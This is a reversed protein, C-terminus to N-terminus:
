NWTKSKETKHESENILKIIPIFQYNKCLFHFTNERNINYPIMKIRNIINTKFDINELPPEIIQWPHIVLCVPINKKNSQKIFWQINNGLLGIFFGSGFPIEKILLSPTLNRPFEIAKNNNYFPYASIPVELLGQIPEFIEFKSYISSDYTFGWDKLVTLHEKKIYVEPARFGKIDFEDIFKKGMKLENILCEKNLLITHSYTHFGIEHGKEKIKDILSPYWDFIEGVIFFTTKINYNQLIKLISLTSNYIYGNDKIKKISSINNIFHKHVWSEIDISLINMQKIM